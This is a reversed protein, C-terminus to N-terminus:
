RFFSPWRWSGEAESREAPTLPEGRDQRGLLEQLRQNVGEPLKFEGLDAPMEIEVYVAQAVREDGGKRGSSKAGIIACFRCSLLFTVPPRSSSPATPSPASRLSYRQSGRLVGLRGQASGACIASRARTRSRHRDAAM